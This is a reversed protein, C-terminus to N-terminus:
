NDSGPVTEEDYSDVKDGANVIGDNDLDGIEMEGTTVPIEDKIDLDDPDQQNDSIAQANVDDAYFPNQKSNDNM